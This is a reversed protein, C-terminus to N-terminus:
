SDWKWLELGLLAETVSSQGAAEPGPYRDKLAEGRRTNGIGAWVDTHLGKM